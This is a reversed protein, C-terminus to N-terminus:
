FREADDMTRALSQVKRKFGAEGVGECVMRVQPTVM